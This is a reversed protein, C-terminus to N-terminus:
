DEGWTKEIYEERGSSKKYLLYHLPNKKYYDQHYDEARYFETAPLIETVIPEDFKGSRALERKSQEALRKQVDNHYFVATRYHKGRDAFQGGTDTPDINRWFTRLLEEYSVADPDYIVRASERHGTRGSVVDEYRPDKEDGGTFGAIVDIVGDMQQFPPEMCWFCGGAFTADSRNEPNPDAMPETDSTQAPRALAIASMIVLVAAARTLAPFISRPYRRM